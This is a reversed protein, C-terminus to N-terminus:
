PNDELVELGRVGKQSSTGEESSSTTVGGGGLASESPGTGIKPRKLRLVLELGEDFTRVVDKKKLPLLGQVDKVTLGLEESAVALPDVDKHSAMQYGLSADSVHKTKRRIQEDGVGAARMDSPGGIKLSHTSVRTADIGITTAGVKLAKAVMERTLVKHLLRGQYERYRSLFNEGSGSLSNRAWWTLDALLQQHLGTVPYVYEYRGRGTRDTKSSRIIIMVSSVVASHSLRLESPSRQVGDMCLFYVDDNKICHKGKTSSDHAYEGVRLCLSYALIIGLYTMRDDVDCNGEWLKCRLEVIM